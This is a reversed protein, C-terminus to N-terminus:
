HTPFNGFAPFLSKSEEYLPKLAHFASRAWKGGFQFIQCWARLTMAKLANQALKIM